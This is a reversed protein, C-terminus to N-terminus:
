TRPFIKVQVHFLDPFQLQLSTDQLGIKQCQLRISKPKQSWAPGIDRYTVYWTYVYIYIYLMYLWCIMYTCTYYIYIYIHINTYTYKYIYIHIQTYIYLVIISYYSLVIIYSMHIYIYVVTHIYYIYIYICADNYIALQYVGEFIRLLRRRRWATLRPVAEGGACGTRSM